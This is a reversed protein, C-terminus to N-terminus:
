LRGKTPAIVLAKNWQWIFDGNIDPSGSVAALGGQEVLDETKTSCPAIIQASISQACLGATPPITGDHAKYMCIFPRQLTNRRKAFFTPCLAPTRRASLVHWRPAPAPLAPQQM